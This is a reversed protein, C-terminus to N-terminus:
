KKVSTKLHQIIKDMEERLHIIKESAEMNTLKGSQAEKVIDKLENQLETLKETTYRMKFIPPM